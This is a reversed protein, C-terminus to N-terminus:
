CHSFVSEARQHQFRDEQSKNKLDRAVVRRLLESASCDSRLRHTSPEIGEEPEFPIELFVRISHQATVGTPIFAGAM